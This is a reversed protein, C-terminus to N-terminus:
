FLMNYVVELLHLSVMVVVRVMHVPVALLVPGVPILALVFFHTDYDSPRWTIAPTRYFAVTDHPGRNQKKPPPTETSPGLLDGQGEPHGSSGYLFHIPVVAVLTSYCRWCSRAADAPIVHTPCTAIFM